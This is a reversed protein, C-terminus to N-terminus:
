AAERSDRFATQVRNSHPYERYGEEARDFLERDMM